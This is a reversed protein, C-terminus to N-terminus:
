FEEFFTYFHAFFGKPSLYQEWIERCKKQHELYSESSFQSHYGSLKISMHNIENNEIFVIFKKWDIKNEFPLVSQTNVFLPIRGCCLTEFFRFSFNGAGRISLIYDNNILNQFFEDRIIRLISPNSNKTYFYKGFYGDRIIFNAKILSNSNTLIRLIRFRLKLYNFGPDHISLFHKVDWKISNLPSINANGCFGISPIKEWKRFILEGGTKEKMLDSHWAPLAFERPLRTKSNLSTRFVYANKIPIKEESDDHYFIALKKGYKSAINSFDSALEINGSRVYQKWDGPLVAIDCESINETFTLGIESLQTFGQELNGLIVRDDETAENPGWISNFLQLHKRGIPLYKNSSYIRM